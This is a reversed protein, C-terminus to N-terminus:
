PQPATQQQQPVTPGHLPDLEQLLAQDPGIHGFHFGMGGIGDGLGGGAQAPLVPAAHQAPLEMAAVFHANLLAHVDDIRLEAVEGLNDFEDSEIYNSIARLIRRRDGVIDGIDLDLVGAVDGLVGVDQVGRLLALVTDVGDMGQLHLNEMAATSTM